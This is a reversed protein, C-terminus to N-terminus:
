DDCVTSLNKEKTLSEPDRMNTEMLAKSSILLM